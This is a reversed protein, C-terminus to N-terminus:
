ASSYSTWCASNALVYAQGVLSDLFSFHQHDTSLKLGDLLRLMKSRGEKPYSVFM